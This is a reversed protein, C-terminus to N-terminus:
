TAQSVQIASHDPSFRTLVMENGTGCLGSPTTCSGNASNNLINNNSYSYGGLFNSSLNRKQVFRRYDFGVGITHKGRVLTVSDAFEWTPIDSTTPNNGPSGFTGLLTNEFSITPFGRAYAPLTTFVGTVALSSIESSTAAPAGQIATAHLYGFRFNKVLSRGLPITHSLMWSTANETFINISFNPSLNQPNENSFDAKTYRFFVSGFRGLNQDLKYTQQNTNNPLTRQLQYNNIGGGCANPNNVCATTPAPFVGAAIAV